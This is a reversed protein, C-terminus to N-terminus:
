ERAMRTESRLFRGKLSFGIPWLLDPAAARMPVSVRVAVLDGSYEGGLIEVRAHEALRRSLVRRIEEEVDDATVGAITARRAATRSAQELEGRALFLLSYEFLGMLVMGLIPLTLVLEMSLVGRRARCQSGQQSQNGTHQM